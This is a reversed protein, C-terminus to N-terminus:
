EVNLLEMGATNFSGHFGFSKYTKINGHSYPKLSSSHEVSFKYALHIDPFKIGSDVLEQYHHFCMFWDEPTIPMDIAQKAALWTCDKPDPSYKYKSCENLFKKSRLSFGGNGVHTKLGSAIWPSGIYDYKFFEDRWRNGDIVFGDWQVVLCYDTDIYNHLDEICIRNYEVLDIKGKVTKKEVGHPLAERSDDVETIILSRGFEIQAISYEMAKITEKFQKNHCIAVITVNDLKNM